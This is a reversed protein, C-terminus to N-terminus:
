KVNKKKKETKPHNPNAPVKLAQNGPVHPVNQLYISPRAAQPQTTDVDPHAAPIPRIFSLSSDFAEEKEVSQDQKTPQHDHQICTSQCACQCARQCATCSTSEPELMENCRGPVTKVASPASQTEWPIVPALVVGLSTMGIEVKLKKGETRYITYQINHIPNLTELPHRIVGHNPRPHM